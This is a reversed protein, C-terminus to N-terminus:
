TLPRPPYCDHQNLWEDPPGEWGYVTLNVRGADSFLVGESELLHKQAEATDSGAPLSIRGQSNIVRHWPITDDPVRRMASGVWRAGLRHYQEPDSDAPPPMMSAIQGYTSVRGEPIQQVILWVLRNFERPNPPNWM